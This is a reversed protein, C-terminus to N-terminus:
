EADMAGLTWSTVLKIRGLDDWGVGSGGCEGCPRMDIVPAVNGAHGGVMEIQGSGECRECVRVSIVTM